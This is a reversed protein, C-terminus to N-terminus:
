TIKKTNSNELHSIITSKNKQFNDTFNRLIVGTLNKFYRDLHLPIMFFPLKEFITDMSSKENIDFRQLGYTSDM